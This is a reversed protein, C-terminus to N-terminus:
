RKSGYVSAPDNVDVVKNSMELLRQSFEFVQRDSLLAFLALLAEMSVEWVKVDDCISCHVSMRGDVTGLNDVAQPNDIDMDLAERLVILQPLGNWGWHVYGLVHNKKCRWEQMKRNSM